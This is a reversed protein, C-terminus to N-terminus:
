CCKDIYVKILITNFMLYFVVIIILPNIKNNISCFYLCSNFHEIEVIHM